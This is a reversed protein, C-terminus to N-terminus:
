ADVETGQEAPFSNIASAVSAAFADNAHILPVAEEGERPAPYFRFLPLCSEHSFLTALFQRLVWVGM